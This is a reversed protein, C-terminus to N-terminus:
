WSYRLSAIWSRGAEVRAWHAGAFLPLDNADTTVIEDTLNQCVINLSFNSLASHFLAGAHIQWYAPQTDVPDLDLQLFTRSRHVADVSAIWSWSTGFLGSAFEIGVAGSRRPARPLPAGRLDQSPEGGTALDAQTTQAEANPFSRYRADLWGLSATLGLGRFLALRGELEAGDIRARAANLTVFRTGDFSAVQLDRYDTAFLSLNLQLRRQWLLTRLGSELARASEPGYALTDETPALLSYGGAKFGTAFSLYASASDSPEFRLALRPSWRSERQQLRTSFAEQGLVQSFLLGTGDFDNAARVRKRETTWRLGAVVSARRAYRWEAEAYASAHDQDQDQHQRSRDTAPDFPDTVVSIPLLDVPLLPAPLSLGGQPFAVFANDHRLRAGFVYLGAAYSLPDGSGTLRIEQSWHRYDEDLSLTLLPLPSFDPDLDARYRARAAGSLLTLIHEDGLALDVRLTAATGRRRESTEAVDSARRGDLRDTETAPDYVRFFTLYEPPSTSLQAAFSDTRFEGHEMGLTASLRGAPRWSLKVRGAGLRPSDEERALTTNLIEGDRGQSMGALRLGWAEGLPLSIAARTAFRQDAGAGAELYGQAREGPDQTTVSLAGALTNRGLLAGQPGRILELQAVDLLPFLAATARGFYIGDVFVGVSPDFGTQATAHSGIGRIYLRDRVFHVNAALAAADQPTALQARGIKEGDLTAISLPVDREDQPQRQATVVIVPLGAEEAPAQARAAFGLLAM